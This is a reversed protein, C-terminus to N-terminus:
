PSAVVVEGRTPDALGKGVRDGMSAKYPGAVLTSDGIHAGM